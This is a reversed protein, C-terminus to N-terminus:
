EVIPMCRDEWLKPDPLNKTVTLVYAANCWPGKHPCPTDYGIRCAPPQPSTEFLNHVYDEGGSNYVTLLYGDPKLHDEDKSVSEYMEIFIETARSYPTGGSRAKGAEYLARRAHSRTTSDQHELMLRVLQDAFADLEPVPRPEFKQTLVAIAPDINRKEVLQDLAVPPTPKLFIGGKMIMGAKSQAFSALPLLLFSLTVALAKM